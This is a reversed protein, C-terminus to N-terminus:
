DLSEDEDLPAYGKGRVTPAEQRQNELATLLITAFQLAMAPDHDAFLKAVRRWEDPTMGAITDFVDAFFEHETTMM